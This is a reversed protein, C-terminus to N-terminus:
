TMRSNHTRACQTTCCGFDIMATCDDTTDRSPRASPHLSMYLRTTPNSRTEIGWRAHTRSSTLPSRTRSEAVRVVARSLACPIHARCIVGDAALPQVPRRDCAQRHDHAHRRDYAHSTSLGVPKAAESCLTATRSNLSRPNTQSPQRHCPTWALAAPKCAAAVLAAM